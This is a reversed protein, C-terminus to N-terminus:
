ITGVTKTQNMREQLHRLALEAARKVRSGGQEKMKELFAIERQGGLRGVASLASIQLPLTAARQALALAEPLAQSIGREACVQLATVRTLDGVAGDRVMRLASDDLQRSDIDPSTESIQHLGLLATGPISGGREEIAEWLTDLAVQREGHSAVSPVSSVSSSQKTESIRSIRSIRPKVGGSGGRVEPSERRALKTIEANRQPSDTKQVEYEEREGGKSSLAPSLLSDKGRTVPPRSTKATSHRETTRSLRSAQEVQCLAALHQIAYDRTVEDQSYDRSLDSLNSALDSPLPRQQLLVELILAEFDVANLDCDLFSKPLM